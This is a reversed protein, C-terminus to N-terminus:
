EVEGRLRARLDVSAEEWEALRGEAKKVRRDSLILHGTWVAASAGFVLPPFWAGGGRSADATLSIFLMYVFGFSFSVVWVVASARVQRAMVVTQRAMVDLRGFASAAEFLEAQPNM